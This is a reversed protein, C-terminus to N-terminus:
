ANRNAFRSTRGNNPNLKRRKALSKGGETISSVDKVGFFQFFHSGNGIVTLREGFDGFRALAGIPAIPPADGYHIRGSLQLYSGQSVDWTWLYRKDKLFIVQHGDVGHVVGQRQTVVSGITHGKHSITMFTYVDELELESFWHDDSFRGKPPIAEAIRM